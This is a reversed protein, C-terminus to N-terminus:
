FIFDDATFDEATITEGEAAIIKIKEGRVEILVGWARTKIFLDDITGIQYYGSLDILDMGDQFDMIFDKRGDAEFVFIDAGDGGTLYDKGGGGDIRDNGAGGDIVDGRRGGFLRDDRGTGPLVDKGSTGTFTGGLVDPDFILQTIGDEIGTIFVHVEGDIIYVALASVNTMAVEFDDAMTLAHLLKGDPLLEFVTLGDDNGALFVFTRGEHTIAAMHSAGEFRTDLTDMVHDTERLHGHQGITYVTITSTGASIMLLYDNGGSSIFEVDQPYTFGSGDGPGVMDRRHLNGYQGIEYVTVGGDFASTVAIFTKGNIQISAFDTIDGLTVTDDDAIPAKEIFQGDDQVLYTYLQNDNRKSVLVYTKDGMTVVLTRTFNSYDSANGVVDTPYAIQPNGGVIAVLSANDDYRGSTLIFDKGDITIVEIDSVAFTGTEDTYDQVDRYRLVSDGYVYYMQLDSTGESAVFLFIQGDKEYFEFDSVGSFDAAGGSGAYLSGVVSLEAM